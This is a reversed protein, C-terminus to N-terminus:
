CAVTAGQGDEWFPEKVMLSLLTIANVLEQAVVHVFADQCWAHQARLPKQPALHLRTTALVPMSAQSGHQARLLIRLSSHRPM